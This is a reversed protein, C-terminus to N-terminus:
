GRLVPIGKQLIQIASLAALVVSVWLVVTTVQALILIPWILTAVLLILLVSQGWFKIKGLWMSGIEKGKQTALHRIGLVLFDRLLFVGFAIASLGHEAVFYLLIIHVMVKDAFHDLFTGLKTITKTKRALWGDVWDSLLAIVLLPMAIVPKDMWLLLLIPLILFLRLLTLMTAPTIRM